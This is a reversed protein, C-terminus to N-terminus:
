NRTVKTVVSPKLYHCKGPGAECLISKDMIGLKIRTNAM